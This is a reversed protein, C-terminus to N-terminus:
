VIGTLDYTAILQHPRAAQSFDAIREVTSQAPTEQSPMPIADERHAGSRRLGLISCFPSV